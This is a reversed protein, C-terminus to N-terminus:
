TEGWWEVKELKATKRFLPEKILIGYDCAVFRNKDTTLRGFNQFKTDNFFDPLKRPLEKRDFVHEVRAQILFIGQPSVAKCPAFWKEIPTDKVANWIIWEAHNQFVPSDKYPEFKIVLHPNPEYAFVWRSMGYGLLDGCFLAALDRVAPVREHLDQCIHYNSGRGTM